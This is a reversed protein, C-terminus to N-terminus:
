SLFPHHQKVGYHTLFFVERRCFFYVFIISHPPIVQIRKQLTRYPCLVCLFDRLQDANIKTVNEDWVCFRIVALAIDERVSLSNGSYNNNGSSNQITTVNKLGLCAGLIMGVDSVSLLKLWIYEVRKELMISFTFVKPPMLGLSESISIIEM